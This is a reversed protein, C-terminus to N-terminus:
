FEKKITKWNILATVIMLLIAAADIILGTLKM